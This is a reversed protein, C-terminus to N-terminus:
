VDTEEETTPQAARLAARAHGMAVSTLWNANGEDMGRSTLAARIGEMTSTPSTDNFMDEIEALAEEVGVARVAADRAALWDSALVTAALNECLSLRSQESHPTALCHRAHLVEALGEADASM